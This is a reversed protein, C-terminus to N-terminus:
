WSEAPRWQGRIRQRPWFKRVSGISRTETEANKKIKQIMMRRRRGHTVAMNNYLDNWRQRKESVSLCWCSQTTPPQIETMLFRCSLGLLHCQWEMWHFRIKSKSKSQNTTTGEDDNPLITSWSHRVPPQNKLWVAFGNTVHSLTSPTWWVCRLVIGQWSWLRVRCKM